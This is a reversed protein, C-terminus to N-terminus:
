GCSTRTRRNGGRDARRRCGPLGGGRGQRVPGPFRHGLAAIHVETLDDRILSRDLDWGKPRRDAREIRAAVIDPDCPGSSGGLRWGIWARACRGSRSAASPFAGTGGPGAHNALGVLVFKCASSPQGGQSAPVPALNLAWCIAEVSV